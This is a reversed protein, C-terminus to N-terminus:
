DKEQLAPQTAASQRAHQQHWIRFARHGERRDDENSYGAFTIEGAIVYLGFDEAPLGYINLLGLLAVDGVTENLRKNDPVSRWRLRAPDDLFKLLVPAARRDGLKGLARIALSRYHSDWYTSRGFFRLADIVAPVSERSQADAVVLTSKAVILAVVFALDQQHPGYFGSEVTTTADRIYRTLCRAVVPDHLAAAMELAAEAVDSDEDNVKAAILLGAGTNPELPIQQVAAKRVLYNGDFLREVLEPYAAAFTDFLKGDKPSLDMRFLRVRLAGTVRALVARLRVQEEVPRSELSGIAEVLPATILEVLQEGAAAAEVEDGRAVTDVLRKLRAQDDDARVNAAAALALIAV